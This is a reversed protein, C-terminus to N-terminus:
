LPQDIIPQWVDYKMKLQAIIISSLQVFKWNNFSTLKKLANQSSKRVLM